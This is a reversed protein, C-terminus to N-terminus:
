LYPLLLRVGADRLRVPLVRANIADLTLPTEMKARIFSELQAALDADHIEVNLEFNLRFSRMDWNASGVFCWAGDVVTAKSHDFPPEDLWIRVGNRLLPAIHARTAWDIFHHDSIRPIVIDVTIGRQSALILANMVVEDPLFYPTVVRVSSRACALAQLIVFEIKEVDADPGSVVVRAISEGVPQLDPFWDPGELAGGDAFAWDASFALMLQEVVPGAVHFHTDRIPHDPRTRLRNPQSINLGGTFAERGDLILLKKHTRLNLFPMRWPLGSHMFLAAPVGAARLRRFAAARFYGGGIGDIIVRVAVGRDQAEKLAACFTRGTPDDRFIYSSLAISTRAAGIAALMAPYAADGNRFLRITNGALAPLGSIRRVARDLPWMVEPVIADETSPAGPAASPKSQFKRARREVRNIGFLLYLSTGFVPSLWALGIWGVAVSVRRKRLLAHLTVGLALVTGIVAAVDARLHATSQLWRILADEM